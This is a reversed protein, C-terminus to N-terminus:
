FIKSEHEKDDFCTVAYVYDSDSPINRDEYEFVTGAVEAIRTWKSDDDSRLKRYIRHATITIDKETNDPNAEWILSNLYYAHFFTREIHKTVTLNSASKVRIKSYPDVAVTSFYVGTPQNFTNWAILMHDYGSALAFMEVPTNSIQAVQKWKSAAEDFKLLILMRAPTMGAAYFDKGHAVLRSFFTHWPKVCLGIDLPIQDGRNEAVPDYMRTMYEGSYEGKAYSWLTMIKGESNIAVQPLFSWGPSTSMRIWKKIDENNLGFEALYIVLNDVEPTDKLTLDSKWAMWVHDREDIALSPQTTSEADRTINQAKAFKTEGKAMTHIFVDKTRGIVECDVTVVEDTSRLAMASTKDYKTSANARPVPIPTAWVGDKFWAYVASKPYNEWYCHFRDNSDVEVNTYLSDDLEPQNGGAISKPSSWTGGKPCYAYYYQTGSTGRFIALRNGISDEAVGPYRWNGATNPTLQVTSVAASAVPEYQMTESGATALAAPKDAIVKTPDKTESSAGIVTGMTVSIAILIVVPLLVKRMIM